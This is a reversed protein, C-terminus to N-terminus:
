NFKFPFGTREPQKLRILFDLVGASGNMWSATPRSESGELWYMHGDTERFASNLLNGAISIAKNLWTVDKFVVYADLMVQGIGAVGSAPSLYNSHLSDPYSDLIEEAALRYPPHRFVQWARILCAAIGAYGIGFWPDTLKSKAKVPWMGIANATYRQGLLWDAGKRAAHATIGDDFRNVYRLLTYVIGSIGSFFGTPRATEVRDPGTIVWSGDEQQRNVIATITQHLEKELDALQPIELATLLCLAKGALGSEVNVEESTKSLERRILTVHGQNIFVSGARISQVLIM